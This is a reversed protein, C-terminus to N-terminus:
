SSLSKNEGEKKEQSPVLYSCLSYSSDLDSTLRFNSGQATGWFKNKRREKHTQAWLHSFSSRACGACGASAELTEFSFWSPVTSVEKRCEGVKNAYPEPLPLMFSGMKVSIQSGTYCASTMCQRRLYPMTESAKVSRETQWEKRCWVKEYGDPELNSGLNM